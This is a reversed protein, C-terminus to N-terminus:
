DREVETIYRVVSESFGDIEIWPGYGIGNKYSAVNIIYNKNGLLLAYSPANLGHGTDQGDTIVIVRDAYKGNALEKGALDNKAFKTAPTLEIGSSGAGSHKIADRLAVGRENRVKKTTTGNAYIHVEDCVERLIIALSSASDERTMDSKSSLASQMSGSVDVILITRGKLKPSQELSKLLAEELEGTYTPAAKAAALYRFPLVYGSKDGQRIAERVIKRDVSNLEMNRLNRLLAMYGLKGETILREFTAKKDAGGSLQVEWTDPVALANDVLKKFIVAQAEDKPKAHSLFLADRLKVDGDRNYKALSYENFKNFAKAIGKKMQASLDKGPNFKWYLSVLETIEDPRRIVDAITDAVGKGGRKILNLLLLLPAHRLGTTRAEIALKAVDEAKVKAATDQIRKGIDVGSEYFTDEWLLTALVSRRLEQIPTISRVVAGEHTYAVPAKTKVNTKM